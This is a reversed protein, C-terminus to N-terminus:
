GEGVLSEIVQGEAIKVYAKKWDPRKGFRRGFAKRKGKVLSTTVREVKVDFLQEVAAAIEKKNADTSVKFVYQNLEFVNSAKESVHAGKIIKFVREKNM